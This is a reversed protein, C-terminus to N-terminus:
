FSARTWFTLTAAPVLGNFDVGVTGVPPGLDASLRLDEARPRFEGGLRSLAYPVQASLAFDLWGFLSYQLTPVVVGTGDGLSQLAVVNANLDPIIGLTIGVMVYDRGRTFPTFPDRPRADTALLGGGAAGINTTSLLSALQGTGRTDAAGAGNRYYQAFVDLRELVPWSYDIGAAVEEHHGPGLVYAAELWWGVELTGRLDLAVVGNKADGRWAGVLAFDTQAWNVRVRGAARVKKLTDDLAVIATADRREGFPIHARVANVGRRPRWPEAFLVEPFPDSPNLFRASGWTLAQRGVRVDARGTYVDLYLRDVDLYDSVSRLNVARDVQEPWDTTELLPGLGGRRLARDLERTTNRGQQLHGEVTTVLKIRETFDYVLTPRVREVVQWKDGSAGPFLSVRVEGFGQTGQVDAAAAESLSVLTLLMFTAVRKM